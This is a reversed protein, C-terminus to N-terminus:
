SRVCLLPSRTLPRDKTNRRCPSTSLILRNLETSFPLVKPSCPTLHALIPASCPGSLIVELQCYVSAERREWAHHGTRGRATWLWVVTRAPRHPSRKEPWSQSSSRTRLNSDRPSKCDFLTTRSPHASLKLDASRSKGACLAFTTM